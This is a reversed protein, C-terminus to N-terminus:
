ILRKSKLFERATKKPKEDAKYSKVMKGYAEDNVIGSLKNLLKPLAPLSSLTETSIVSAFPPTGGMPELWIMNLSKQYERKVTEQATKPNSDRPKGLFELARDRNEIVLGLEGKKVAAYLDKLDRFPVIKVTTGTRETVLTAVMEALVQEGPSNQVGIYLIKGVCADLNNGLMVLFAIVGAILVRKM